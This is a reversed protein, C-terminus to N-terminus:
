INGKRTVTGIPLLVAQFEVIASGDLSNLIEPLRTFRAPGSFHESPTATWQHQTYPTITQEALVPSNAFVLATFFLFNKM